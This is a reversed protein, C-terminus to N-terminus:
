AYFYTRKDMKPLPRIATFVFNSSIFMRETQIIICQIKLLMVTFNIGAHVSQPFILSLQMVSLLSTIFHDTFLSALELFDM